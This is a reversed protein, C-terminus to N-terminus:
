HSIAWHCSCNDLFLVNHLTVQIKTYAVFGFLHRGYLLNLDTAGAM